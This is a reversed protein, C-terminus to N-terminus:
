WSRGEFIGHKVYHELADMGSQAVDSHRSYYGASDFLGAKEVMRRTRQRRRGEPLLAWWRPLRQLLATFERLWEARAQMDRAREAEEAAIRTVQAVAEHQAENQPAYQTEHRPLDHAAERAGLRQELELQFQMLQTIEQENRRARSLAAAHEDYLREFEADRRELDEGAREARWTAERAQWRSELGEAESVLFAQTRAELREELIAIRGHVLAHDARERELQDRLMDQARKEVSLEAWAQVAEEERQRLASTLEALRAELGAIRDRLATAEAQNASAEARATELGISLAAVQGLLADRGADGAGASDQRQGTGAATAQASAARDVGLHKVDTDLEQQRAVRGGAEEPLQAIDNRNGSGRDGGSGPAPSTPRSHTAQALECTLREVEAKLRRRRREGSGEGSGEGSVTDRLALQALTPSAANFEARIRDLEAWDEVRDDDAQDRGDEGERCWKHLIAYTQRVWEPCTQDLVMDSTRRHHRAGEVLFEDIAAASAKTQLPWALHTVHALRGSVQRWDALLDIYSFVHRSRGRSAREADLVHRLWLWLGHGFEFGDRAELSLAVELPHRVPLAVVVAAGVRELASFWFPAIRCIRPDKLVFMHSGGYEEELVRVARDLFGAAREQMAKNGPGDLALWDDWRSGVAALLEENLAVIANSEWHGSENGAGAPMLTRPLDCGLLSAVRAFASTGSRHMGLVM